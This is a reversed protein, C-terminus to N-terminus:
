FFTNQSSVVSASLCIVTTFLIVDTESIYYLLQIFNYLIFFSFYLYMLNSTSNLVQTFTNKWWQISYYVLSTVNPLLGFPM